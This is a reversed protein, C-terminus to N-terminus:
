NGAGLSVRTAGNESAIRVSITRGPAGSSVTLSTSQRGSTAAGSAPSVDITLDACGDSRTVLQASFGRGAILQEIARETQPDTAGCLRFSGHLPSQSPASAPTSTPGPTAAPAAECPAERAARAAERIIERLRNLEEQLDRLADGIAEEADTVADAAAAAAAGPDGDPSTGARDISGLLGPADLEVPVDVTDLAGLSLSACPAATGADAAANGSDAVMLLAALSLASCALAAGWASRTGWTRRRGATVPM